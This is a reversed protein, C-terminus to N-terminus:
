PRLVPSAQGVLAPHLEDPSPPPPSSPAITFAATVFAARIWSRERPLGIRLRERIGPRTEGARDGQTRCSQAGSPRDPRAGVEAGTPGGAQPPEGFLGPATDVGGLV